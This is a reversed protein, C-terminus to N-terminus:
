RTVIVKRVSRFTEGQAEVIYLGAPLSASDLQLRLRDGWGDHLTAVERGLLDYVAVRVAEPAALTLVVAARASTPNPYVDLSLGGAHPGDPGAAVSRDPLAAATLVEVPLVGDEITDVVYGRFDCGDETTCHFARSFAAKIVDASDRAVTFPFLLHAQQAADFTASQVREISETSDSTVPYRDTLLGSQADLSVIDRGSDAGFVAGGEDWSASFLCVGDDEPGLEESDKLETPAGLTGAEFDLPYLLSQYYTGEVEACLRTVLVANGTEPAYGIGVPIELGTALLGTHLSDHVATPSAGPAETDLSFLGFRKGDQAYSGIFYFLGDPGMTGGRPTLEDYSLPNDALKTIPFVISDPLTEPVEFTGIGDRDESVLEFTIVNLHGFLQSPSLSSAGAATPTTFTAPDSPPLYSTFPQASVTAPLLAALALLAGTRLFSIM